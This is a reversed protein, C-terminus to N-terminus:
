IILTSNLVLFINLVSETTEFNYYFQTLVGHISSASVVAYSPSILAGM